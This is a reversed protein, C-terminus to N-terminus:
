MKNKWGTSTVVDAPQKKIGMKLPGHLPNM